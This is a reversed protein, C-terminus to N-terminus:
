GSGTEGIVITTRHERISTLLEIKHSFIPLSEDRAIRVSSNNLKRRKQSMHVFNNVVSPDCSAVLLKVTKGV